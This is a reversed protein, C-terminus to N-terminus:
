LAAQGLKKRTAELIANIKDKNKERDEASFHDIILKGDLHDIEHQIARAFYDDADIMLTKGNLLEGKIKIKRHRSVNGWVDPISLCGEEQDTFDESKYIVKPNILTIKRSDKSKSMDIVLIRKSIGIQPAALGIGNEDALTDKMDEVIKRIEENVEKVEAARQRLVPNGYAIVELRAM